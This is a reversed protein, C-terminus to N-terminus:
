AKPDPFPPLAPGDDAGNAPVLLTSSFAGLRVKSILFENIIGPNTSEGHFTLSTSIIYDRAAIRRRTASIISRALFM